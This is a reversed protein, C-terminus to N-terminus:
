KTRKQNRIVLYMVSFIVTALDDGIGAGLTVTSAERTGGLPARDLDRGADVITLHDADAALAARADV